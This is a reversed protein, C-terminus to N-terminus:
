KATFQGFGVRASGWKSVKRSLISFQELPDFGWGGDIKVIFMGKMQTHPRSNLAVVRDERHCSVYILGSRYGALYCPDKLVEVRSGPNGSPVIGCCRILQGKDSM